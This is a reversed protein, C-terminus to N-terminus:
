DVWGALLRLKPGPLFKIVMNKRNGKKQSFFFFLFCFTALLESRGKLINNGTM